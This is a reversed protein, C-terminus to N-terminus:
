VVMIPPCARPDSYKPNSDVIQYIRQGLSVKFLGLPRVLGVM